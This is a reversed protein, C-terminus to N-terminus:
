DELDLKELYNEARGFSLTEDLRDYNLGSM